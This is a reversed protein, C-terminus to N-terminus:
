DFIRLCQYLVVNMIKENTQDVLSIVKRRGRKTTSTTDKTINIKDELEIDGGTSLKPRKSIEAEQKDHSHRKNVTLSEVTKMKEDGAIIKEEMDKKKTRGRKSTTPMQSIDQETFIVIEDQKKKHIEQRKGRKNSHKSIEANVTDHDNEVNILMKTVAIEEFLQSSSPIDDMNTVIMPKRKTGRRSTSIQDPEKIEEEVDNKDIRGKKASITSKEKATKSATADDMVEINKLSTELEDEKLKNVSLKEINKSTPSVEIDKSPSICPEAYNIARKRGRRSKVVTKNKNEEPIDEQNNVTEKNNHVFENLKSIPKIIKTIKKQLIEKPEPEDQVVVKRRGRRPAAKIIDKSDNINENVSKKRQTETAVTLFEDCVKHVKNADIEKKKDINDTKSIITLADFSDTSKDINAEINFSVTNELIFDSSKQAINDQSQLTSTANSEEERENNSEVTVKLVLEGYKQDSDDKSLSSCKEGRTNPQVTEELGFISCKENMNNEQTLTFKNISESILSETADQINSEVATEPVLKPSIEHSHNQHDVTSINKLESVDFTTAGKDNSDFTNLTNSDGGEINYEVNKKFMIQNSNSQTQPTSKEFECVESASSNEKINSKLTKEMECKSLIKNGNSQSQILAVNLEINDRTEVNLELTTIEINSENTNDLVITSSIKNSNDESQIDNEYNSGSANSAIADGREINLEVTEEFLITSQSQLMSKDSEFVELAIADKREINLEDTEELKSSVLKSSIENTNDQSKEMSEGVGITNKTELNSEVKNNVTLKSSLLEDNGQSQLTSKSTSDCEELIIADGSKTNSEISKEMVFNSSMGDINDQAQLSSKDNCDSVKLIIADRSETNLEISKGKAYISSMKDNNVTIDSVELKIADGNKTDSEISKDMEFSCFMRENNDQSQLTSKDTSNSVELIITDANETNSEISKEMICKSPGVDNNGQSQIDNENNPELADSVIASGAEINSEVKKELLSKSQSALIFKDTESVDLNITEKSTINPQVAKEFLHKSSIGDNNDKSQLTNKNNSDFVELTITDESETNHLVTRGLLFKSCMGDNNDESQVVPVDLGINDRTEVKTEFTNIESNSENTNDLAITSSIKNSNDESQIDNENNSGSVDLAIGDRREINLEITEEFLIISQSQRMSKDSESVELAIADRREIKLEVTEEIKGSIENGNDQSQGLSEDFEIIDKTEVNSEVTKNVALKSSLLEDNGQSQSTSKNMSGSVELIVIDESEDNSEISKETVFKSSAEDGNKPSKLTSKDTSETIELIITDESETNSETSKEMICKSPEVDNNGQSQIDNENNPKLADSVISSGAEINSKVKKELLTKSQSELIFKDSESVDLNIYEESTINSQVAKEFLHKSSIGDNNDKSQLTNKNNSDFVELTITDESETNHLVTRGLLFKSRMGDNNDESQVVPVDLGINDRTEVKTEFTNIEINSENTNDLAITSSIKNSNDESQIDNKNNSGSVDLAIGDRREINLEITEEFLIISQSQRMSKDSESVELAIADRREIKLEVTEEIKGSIENGNDQSQGLSEDFEIIDKTEVNSEVTKNVTLKSSLLEDNGQSQSTSKNMSGSVELIVIDESEANSEISKETVFKSSAEDGNKPSKLTSKDTSETIELIITDESETHSETSKEMICKSPEVDNNGQSQIDNENNPKLADSVISSGAEINSKVKKELLTKSQSELIFKDSESVDLNITEKSTINSQVAKEFLHKSSIGDNNDKSQLTNKNNSGFAELTVDGTEVNSKVTKELVFKLMQDSSSQSKSTCKDLESIDSTGDNEKIISETKIDLTIKSCTEYSNDKSQIDNKENSKSVNSANADKREINFDMTKELVYKSAMENERRLSEPDTSTVDNIKINSEATKQLFCKSSSENDIDQSQLFSVDVGIIDRTEIDSEVINELVLKSSIKDNVESQSISKDDSDSLESINAEESEIVSEISKEMVFKSSTTDNNGQSQLTSKDSKSIDTVCANEIRMNSKVINEAVFETPKEITNDQSKLISKNNIDCENLIIENDTEINSEIVFKSSKQHRNDQYKLTSKDYSETLDFEKFLEKNAINSDVTKELVSELSMNEESQPIFKDSCISVDLKVNEAAINSEVTKELVVKPSVQSNNFRDKVESLSLTIADESGNSSQVTSDVQSRNDLYQSSMADKSKSADLTYDESQINSEIIMEADLLSTFSTNDSNVELQLSSKIDDEMNLPVKITKIDISANIKKTKNELDENAMLSMDNYEYSIKSQESSKIDVAFGSTKPSELHKETDTKKTLVKKVASTTFNSKKLNLYEDENDIDALDSDTDSLVLAEFTENSKLEEIKNMKSNQSIPLESETDSVKLSFSDESEDLLHIGSMESEIPTMSREDLTLLDLNQEGAVSLSLPDSIETTKITNGSKNVSLHLPDISLSHEISSKLSINRKHLRSVDDILEEDLNSVEIKKIWNQVEIEPLDTIIDTSSFPSEEIKDLKSNSVPTSYESVQQNTSMNQSRETLDQNNFKLAVPSEFLKELKDNSDNLNYETCNLFEKSAFSQKIMESSPTVTMMLNKGRPTKFVDVTPSNLLVQSTEDTKNNKPIPTSSIRPTALLEQVGEFETESGDDECKLVEKGYNYESDDLIEYIRENQRNDFMSKLEEINSIESKMGISANKVTVSSASDKIITEETYSDEVIAGMSEEVYQDKLETDLAKFSRIRIPTKNLSESKLSSRRFQITCKSALETPMSVRREIRRKNLPDNRNNESTNVEKCDINDKSVINDKSTQLKQTENFCEEDFLFEMKSNSHKNEKTLCIDNEVDNEIKKETMINDKASLDFTENLNKVSTEVAEGFNESVINSDISDTKSSGYNCDITLNNKNKLDFDSEKTGSLKQSIHPTTKQLQEESMLSLSNDRMVEYQRSNQALRRPTISKHLKPTTPTRSLISGAKSKQTSKLLIRKMLSPSSRKPTTLKATFRKTPTKSASNIIADSDDDIEIISSASSEVSIPTDLSVSKRYIPTSSPKSCSPMELKSTEKKNCSKILLNPIPSKPAFKIPTTFDVLYMPSNPAEQLYRKKSTNPTVYKLSQNAKYMKPMVGKPTSYTSKPTCSIFDVFSKEIQVGAIRPSFSTIKMDSYNLCINQKLIECKKDPTSDIVMIKAIDNHLNLGSLNCTSDIIDDVNCKKDKEIENVETLSNIQSINENNTDKKEIDDGTYTSYFFSHVTFRRPYHHSFRLDPCSNPARDANASKQPTTFNNESDSRKCEFIFKNELVDLVHKHLLPRKVEISVNNIKIPHENSCNIINVRDWADIVLKCHVREVRPDDISVDCFPFKGFTFEKKNIIYEEVKEGSKDLRILKAEYVM